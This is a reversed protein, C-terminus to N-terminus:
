KLDKMAHRHCDDLYHKWLEICSSGFAAFLGAYQKFYDGAPLLEPNFFYLPSWGRTYDRIFHDRCERSTLSKFCAKCIVIQRHKHPFKRAILWCYYKRAQYRSSHGVGAVQLRLDSGRPHVHQLYFPPKASSCLACKPGGYHKIVATRLAAYTTRLATYTMKHKTLPWNRKATKKKAAKRPRSIVANQYNEALCVLIKDRAILIRNVDGTTCVSSKRLKSLQVDANTMVKEQHRVLYSQAAAKSPFTTQVEFGGSDSNYHTKKTKKNKM